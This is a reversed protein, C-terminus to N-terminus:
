EAKIRELDTKCDDIEESVRVLLQIITNNQKILALSSGIAGKAGESPKVFGLAPPELNETAQLAEIYTSSSATQQYTM